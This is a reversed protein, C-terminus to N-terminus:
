RTGRPFLQGVTPGGAALSGSPPVIPKDAYPALASITNPFPEATLTDPQAAADVVLPADAM